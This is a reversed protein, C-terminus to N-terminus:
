DQVCWSAAPTNCALLGLGWAHVVNPDQFGRPTAYTGTDSDLNTTWANCNVGLGQSQDSQPGFGTRIWGGASPPGFGSDASTSGLTTDYRLNSPDIIEYISAMHYGPVCANLAMNGPLGVPTLYYGRGPVSKTPPAASMSHTLLSRDCPLLASHNRGKRVDEFAAHRVEQPSRM